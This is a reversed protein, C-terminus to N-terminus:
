PALCSISTNRKVPKVDVLVILLNHDLQRLLVAPRDENVLLLEEDDPEVDHLHLLISLVPEM